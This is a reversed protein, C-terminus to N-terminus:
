ACSMRSQQSTKMEGALFTALLVDTVTTLNFFLGSQRTSHKRPRSVVSANILLRSCASQHSRIQTSVVQELRIKTVHLTPSSRITQRSGAIMSMSATVAWMLGMSSKRMPQTGDKM